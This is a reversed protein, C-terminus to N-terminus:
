KLNLQNAGELPDTVKGEPEGPHFLVVRESRTRDAFFNLGFNIRSQRTM